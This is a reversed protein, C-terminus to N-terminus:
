KATEFHKNKSRDYTLGYEALCNIIKEMEDVSLVEKSRCKRQAYRNGGVGSINMLPSIKIFPISNLDSVNIM